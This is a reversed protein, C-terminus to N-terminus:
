NACFFYLYLVFSTTCVYYMECRLNSNARTVCAVMLDDDESGLGSAALAWLVGSVDRPEMHPLVAQM